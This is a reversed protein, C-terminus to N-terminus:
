TPLLTIKADVLQTEMRESQKVGELPKIPSPLHAHRKLRLTTCRRESEGASPRQWGMCKWSSTPGRGMGTTPGVGRPSALTGHNNGRGKREGGNGRGINRGMSANICRTLGRKSPRLDRGWSTRAPDSNRRRARPIASLIACTPRFFVSFRNTRITTANTPTSSALLVLSLSARLPLLLPSGRFDRIPHFPSDCTTSPRACAPDHRASELVLDPWKVLM